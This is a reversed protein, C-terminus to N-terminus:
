KYLNRINFYPNNEFNSFSISDAAESIKEIIAFGTALFDNETDITNSYSLYNLAVFLILVIIFLYFAYRVFYHRIFEVTILAIVLIVAILLVNMSIFHYFHNIFM